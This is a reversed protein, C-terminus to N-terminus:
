LFPTDYVYVLDYTPYDNKECNDKGHNHYYYCYTKKDGDSRGYSIWKCQSGLRIQDAYCLQICEEVTNTYGLWTYEEKDDTKCEKQEYIMYKGVHKIRAFLNYFQTQHLMQECHGFLHDCRGRRDQPYQSYPHGYDFFICPNDPTEQEVCLRECEEPSSTKGLNKHEGGCSSDQAFLILETQSSKSDRIFNIFSDIQLIYAHYENFLLRSYQYNDEYYLRFHENCKTRQGFADGSIKTYCGTKTPNPFTIKCYLMEGSGHGIADRKETVSILGEGYEADYYDEKWGSWSNGDSGTKLYNIYGKAPYSFKFHYYVVDRAIIAWKQLKVLADEVNKLIVDADDETADCDIDNSCIYLAKIYELNGFYLAQSYVSLTPFLQMYYSYASTAGQHHGFMGVLAISYGSFDRYTPLQQKINAYDKIIELYTIISRLFDVRTNASEVAVEQKICKVLQLGMENIKDVVEPLPDEEKNFMNVVDGIVGIVMGAPGAFKAFKSLLTMTQLVKKVSDKKAFEAIDGLVSGATKCYSAAKTLDESATQGPMTIPKLDCADDLAYQKWYCKDESYGPTIFALLLIYFIM